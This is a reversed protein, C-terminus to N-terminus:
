PHRVTKAWRIFLMNNRQWSVLRWNNISFNWKVRLPESDNYTPQHFLTLYEFYSCERFLIAEFRKSKREIGLLISSPKIKKLMLIGRLSTSIIIVLFIEQDSVFSYSLWSREMMDLCVPCPAYFLLMMKLLVLFLM